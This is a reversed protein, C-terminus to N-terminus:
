LICFQLNPKERHTHFMPGQASRLSYVPSTLHLSCPALFFLEVYSSAYYPAAPFQMILLKMIQVARLINDPRVFLSPLSPCPTHCAHLILFMRTPNQPFRLIFHTSQLCSLLHSSLISISRISVPGSLQTPNM